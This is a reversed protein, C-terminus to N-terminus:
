VGGKCTLRRGCEDMVGSAKVPQWNCYVNQLETLLKWHGCGVRDVKAAENTKKIWRDKADAVARKVACECQMLGYHPLSYLFFWCIHLVKDWAHKKAAQLPSLVEESELFWDLSRRGGSGVVAIASTVLCSWLQGWMSVASRADICDINEFGESM